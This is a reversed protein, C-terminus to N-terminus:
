PGRGAFRACDLVPIEAVDDLIEAGAVEEDEVVGADDGRADVAESPGESLDLREEEFLHPRAQPRRKEAGASLDHGALASLSASPRM